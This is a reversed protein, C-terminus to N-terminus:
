KKRENKKKARNKKTAKADVFFFLRDCGTDTGIGM